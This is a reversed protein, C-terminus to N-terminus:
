YYMEKRYSEIEDITMRFADEAGEISDASFYIPSSIVEGDYKETNEDYKVVCSYGRYSPIKLSESM